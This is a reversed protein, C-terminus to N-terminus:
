SRKGVEVEGVLSVCGDVLGYSPDDADSFPFMSVELRGEATFDDRRGKLDETPLPDRNRNFVDRGFAPDGFMGDAMEEIFKGIKM